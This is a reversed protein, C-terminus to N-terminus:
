INHRSNPWRGKPQSPFRLVETNQLLTKGRGLSIPNIPVHCQNIPISGSSRRDSHNCVIKRQVGKYADDGEHEQGCGKSALHKEPANPTAIYTDLHKLSHRTADTCAGCCDSTVSSYTETVQCTLTRDEEFLQCITQSGRM